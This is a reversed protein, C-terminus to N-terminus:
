APRRIMVLTSDPFYTRFDLSDLPMAVLKLDNCHQEIEQLGHVHETTEFHYEAIGTDSSIEILVQMKALNHSTWTVPGNPWVCKVRSGDQMVSTRVRIDSDKFDNSLVSTDHIELFAAGASSLNQAVYGLLTFLERASLYGISYRLALIVDFEGTQPSCLALHRPIDGCAVTFREAPGRQRALSCMQESSDIAIVQSGIEAFYRGHWAPGAFLELVKSPCGPNPASAASGILDCQKAFDRDAAIAEYLQPVNAYLDKLDRSPTSTM